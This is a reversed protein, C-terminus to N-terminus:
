ALRKAFGKDKSWKHLNQRYGKTFIDMEQLSNLIRTNLSLLDAVIFM